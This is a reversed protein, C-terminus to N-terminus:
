CLCGTCRSPFSCHIPGQRTSCSRVPKVRACNKGCCHTAVFPSLIKPGLAPNAKEDLQPRLLPLLKSSPHVLVLSANVETRNAREAQLIEEKKGKVSEEEPTSADHHRFTFWWAIVYVVVLQQSSQVDPTVVSPSIGQTCGGQEPGQWFEYPFLRAAFPSETMGTGSKTILAFKKKRRSKLRSHRRCLVLRDRGQFDISLM